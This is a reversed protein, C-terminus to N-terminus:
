TRRGIEGCAWKIKIKLTKVEKLGKGRFYSSTPNSGVTREDRVVTKLVAGKFWEPVGGLLRYYFLIVIM